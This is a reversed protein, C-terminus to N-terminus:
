ERWIDRLYRVLSGVSWLAVAAWVFLALFVIAIILAIEM